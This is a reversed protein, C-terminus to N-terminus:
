WRGLRCSPRHLDLIWLPFAERGKELLRPTVKRAHRFKEAQRVGWWLM